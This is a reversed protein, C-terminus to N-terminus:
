VAGGALRRAGPRERHPVAAAEPGRQTHIGVGHALLERSRAGEEVQQVALPSGGAGAQARGGFWLLGGGPCPVGWCAEPLCRPCSQAEVWHDLCRFLLLIEVPILVHMFWDPMQAKYLHTSIVFYKLACSWPACDFFLQKECAPVTLWSLVSLCLWLLQFVWHQLWSNKGFYQNFFCVLFVFWFLLEFAGSRKDRNWLNILSVRGLLVSFWLIAFENQLAMWFFVM